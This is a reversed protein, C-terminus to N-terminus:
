TKQRSQRHFWNSTLAPDDIIRAITMLILSAHIDDLMAISPDYESARTTKAQTELRFVEDWFTVICQKPDRASAAECFNRWLVDIGSPLNPSDVVRSCFTQALAVNLDKRHRAAEILYALVLALSAAYVAAMSEQSLQSLANRLHRNSPHKDVFSQQFVGKPVLYTWTMLFAEDQQDLPEPWGRILLETCIKGAEDFRAALSSLKRERFLSFGM